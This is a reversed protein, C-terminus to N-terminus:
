VLGKEEAYRRVAVRSDLGLKRYINRLHTKVTGETIDLRRGIEKNRLGEAVMRVMEIERSTLEASVDRLGVERRLAAELADHVARNEVWRGGMHVKHLCQLLLRPAMEKLVVGDVGLRVAELLDSEALSATLLVVRTPLNLRRIERLVAIGNLGPMRIDLVAVDPKLSQISLLAAEGNGSREVVDFDGALRLLQDLGDLFLPHDDALLVRINM